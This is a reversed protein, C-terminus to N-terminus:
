YFFDVYSIMFIFRSLISISCLILAMYFMNKEIKREMRERQHQQEFERSTTAQNNLSSMQLQEFERQKVNVHSKYTINSFINLIIGALLSLFLHLFFSTFGILFQGFQTQSFDSSAYYHLTSFQKVGNSDFYFYDGFSSIKLSFALPIGILLCILFYILSIIQPRAKFHKKVFPSFHKM